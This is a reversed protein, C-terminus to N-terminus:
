KFLALATKRGRWCAMEYLLLVGLEAEVNRAEARMRQGTLGIQSGSHRQRRLTSFGVLPDFKLALELPGM